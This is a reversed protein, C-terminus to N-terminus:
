GLSGAEDGHSWEDCSILVSISAWYSNDKNEMGYNEVGYNEVGYNEMGYNEMGYNEMGYNEM